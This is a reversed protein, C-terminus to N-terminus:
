KLEIDGDAGVDRGQSIVMFRLDPLAHRQMLDRIHYHELKVSRDDLRTWYERDFMSRYPPLTGDPILCKVFGNGVRNKIAEIQVLHNQPMLANLLSDRLREAFEEVRVIPKITWVVDRGDIRRTRIGWVLLGGDSNSFASLTKAFNKSDDQHLDPSRSDHKEKFEIYNTESQRATIFRSKVAAYSNLQMSLDVLQQDM